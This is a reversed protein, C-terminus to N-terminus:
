CKCLIDPAESTFFGFGTGPIHFLSKKQLPEILMPVSWHRLKADNGLYFNLLESMKGPPLYLVESNISKSM